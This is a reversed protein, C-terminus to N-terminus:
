QVKVTLFSLAENNYVVRIAYAGNTMSVTPITIEKSNIFLFDSSHLNLLLRGKIDFLQVKSINKSNESFVHLLRSSFFGSIATKRVQNTSLEASIYDDPISISDRIPPQNTKFIDYKSLTTWGSIWLSDSNKTPDLAGKYWEQKIYGSSDLRNVPYYVPWNASQVTNDGRPRLDLGFNGPYKDTIVFGPDFVCNKKDTASVLNRVTISPFYNTWSTGKGWFISNSLLLDGDQWRTVCNPTGTNELNLMEGKYIISNIYKGGSAIKFNISYSSNNTGGIYTVNAIVPNSFFHGIDGGDHEGCADGVERQICLWYQGRGCWGADYDFADDDNFISVLYRCNVAGGFWEFGDDNSNIVEVYEILTGRGVGGMTLGNLENDTGLVTGPYRISVYRFVGSTDNDDTGGYEGRTDTASIGEIQSVGGVKSIKAKGLLVVGGWLGRDNFDLFNYNSLDESISTMIIPQEKTGEAYIRAGKCIILAKSDLEIGTEGKVVVGPQIRLVGGAEVFIKEKLIYTNGTTWTVDSTGTIDADRVDITASHLLIAAAMVTLLTKKM